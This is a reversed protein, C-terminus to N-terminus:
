GKSYDRIKKLVSKSASIEAGKEVESKYAVTDDMKITIERQIGSDAAGYHSPQDASYNDSPTYAVGKSDEKQKPAEKHVTGELGEPAEFMASIDVPQLQPVEIDPLSDRQAIEQEARKILEEAEKEEKKRQEKFDKLERLREEASLKGLKKKDLAM